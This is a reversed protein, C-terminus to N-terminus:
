ENSSGRKTLLAICKNIDECFQAHNHEVPEKGHWIVYLESLIDFLVAKDDPEFVPESLVRDSFIKVILERLAKNIGANM